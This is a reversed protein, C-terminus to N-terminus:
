ATLALESANIRTTNVEGIMLDLMGSKVQVKQPVRKRAYKKALDEGITNTFKVGYRKRIAKEFKDRFEVLDKLNARTVGYHAIAMRTFDRMDTGTSSASYTAEPNYKILALTAEDLLKNLAKPNIAMQTM